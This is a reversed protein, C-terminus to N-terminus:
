VAPSLGFSTFDARGEVLPLEGLGLCLGPAMSNPSIGTPGPPFALHSGRLSLWTGFITLGSCVAIVSSLRTITLAASNSRRSCVAVRCHPLRPSGVPLGSRLVRTVLIVHHDDMRRITARPSIKGKEKARAKIYGSANFPQSTIINVVHEHLSPCYPFLTKSIQNKKEEEEKGEGNALV